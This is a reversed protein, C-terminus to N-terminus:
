SAALQPYRGFFWQIDESMRTAEIKMRITMIMDLEVIFKQQIIM